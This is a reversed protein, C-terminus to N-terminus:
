GAEIVRKLENMETAARQEVFAMAQKVKAKAAPYDRHISMLIDFMKTAPTSDFEPAWEELGIDKFMWCKPSHFESFTHMMPTGVALAM